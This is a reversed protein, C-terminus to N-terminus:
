RCVIIRADVREGRSSNQGPDPCRLFKGDWDDKPWAGCRQKENKEEDEPFFGSTELKFLRDFFNGTDQQDQKEKEAASCPCCQDM